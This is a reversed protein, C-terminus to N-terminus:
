KELSIPNLMHSILSIMATMNRKRAIILKGAVAMALYPLFFRSSVKIKAPAPTIEVTANM